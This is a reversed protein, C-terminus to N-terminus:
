GPGEVDAGGGDRLGGGRLRSRGRGRLRRPRRCRGASGAGGASPTQACAPGAQCGRGRDLWAGRGRLRRLRGGRLHWRRGPPRGVPGARRGRLRRLRPDLTKGTRGPIRETRTCAAVPRRPEWSPRSCKLHWLSSPMRARSDTCAGPVYTGNM